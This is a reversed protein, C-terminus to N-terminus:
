CYSPFLLCLSNLKGDEQLATPYPDPLTVAAAWTAVTAYTQNGAPSSGCSVTYGFFVFSAEGPTPPSSQTQPSPHLEPRVQQGLLLASTPIREPHGLEVPVWVVGPAM